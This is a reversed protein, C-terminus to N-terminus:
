NSDRRIMEKSVASNFKSHKKLDDPKSLTSYEDYHKLCTLCFDAPLISFSSNYGRAFLVVGAFDHQPLGLFYFSTTLVKEREYDFHDM